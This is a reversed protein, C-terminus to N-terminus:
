WILRRSIQGPQGMRKRRAKARRFPHSALEAPEAFAALEALRTAHGEDVDREAGVKGAGCARGIGGEGRSELLDGREAADGRTGREIGGRRDAEGILRAEEVGDDGKIGIERRALQKVIKEEDLAEEAAIARAGDGITRAGEVEVDEEVAIEDEGLGTEFDRM